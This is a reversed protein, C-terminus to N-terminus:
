HEMIPHAIDHEFDTPDRIEVHGKWAPIFQMWREDYIVIPFRSRMEVLDWYRPIYLRNKPTWEGKPLKEGKDSNCPECAVVVNMWEDKGGKSQPHVHDVTMKNKPLMDGCYACLGGDRYYLTEANLNVHERAHIISPSNRAIISPWYFIQTGTTKIKVPYDYVSQCTGNFCRTVADKVPILSLPFLNIPKYDSNLVLSRLHDYGM